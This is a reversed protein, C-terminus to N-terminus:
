LTLRWGKSQKAIEFGFRGTGVMLSPQVHGFSVCLKLAHFNLQEITLLADQSVLGSKNLL